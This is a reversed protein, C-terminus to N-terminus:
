GSSFLKLIIILGFIIICMGGLVKENLYILSCAMVFLVSQKLLRCKSVTEYIKTVSKLISVEDESLSTNPKVGSLTVKSAVMFVICLLLILITLLFLWFYAFGFAGFVSSAIQSPALINWAIVGLFLYFFLNSFINKSKTKM